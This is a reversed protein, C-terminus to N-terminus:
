FRYAAQLLWMNWQAERSFYSPNDPGPLWGTGDVHHYEARLILSPSVDWRLGLTWDLAYQTHAPLGTAAQFETGSKNYKRRYLVDHRLMLEWAPHFRWEAQLYYAQLVAHVDPVAPSNFDRFNVRPESYEATLTVTDIRQQVSAIIDSYELSGASFPDPNAPSYDAKLGAYTLMLTTDSPAEWRLQSVLSNTGKLKGPRPFGLFNYELSESDFDPRVWGLSFDIAGFERVGSGHLLVGPAALLVERSNDFYISQPLLIGPRTFPVDRTENYLGYPLKVKGFKIGLQSAEDRHFRWDAQAYDLRLGDEDTEGARRYLIQGSVQFDELPLWYGHIAAETFGASVRDKSEGFFNNNTSGILSQAAYGQIAYRDTVLGDAAAPAASLLGSLLLKSWPSRRSAMM